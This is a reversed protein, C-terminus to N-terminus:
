GSVPGSRIFVDKVKKGDSPGCATLAALFRIRIKQDLIWGAVEIGGSHAAYKPYKVPCPTNSYNSCWLWDKYHSVTWFSLSHVIIVFSINSCYMCVKGLIGYSMLWCGIVRPIRRSTPLILRLRQIMICMKRYHQTFSTMERKNQLIYKM